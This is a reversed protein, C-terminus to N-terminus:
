TQMLVVDALPFPNIGISIIYANWDHPRRLPRCSHFPPLALYRSIERVPSVVKEEKCAVATHDPSSRARPTRIYALVYLRSHSLRNRFTGRNTFLYRTIESKAIQDAAAPEAQSEGQKHADLWKKDERRLSGPWAM